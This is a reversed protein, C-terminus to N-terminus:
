ASVEVARREDRLRGLLETALGADITLAARDVGEALDDVAGAVQLAAAANLLIVDRRVGPEGRLTAEIAAANEAATGGALRTTSAAALGVATAVVDRRDISSASVDYLV